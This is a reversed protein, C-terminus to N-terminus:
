FHRYILDRERERRIEGQAGEEALSTQREAGEAWTQKESISMLLNRAWNCSRQLRLRLSAQGERKRKLFWIGFLDRKQKINKNKFGFASLNMWDVWLKKYSVEWPPFYGKEDHPLMFIISISKEEDWEGKKVVCVFGQSDMFNWFSPSLTCIDTPPMNTSPAFSSSFVILQVDLINRFNLPSM